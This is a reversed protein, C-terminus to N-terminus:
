GAGPAAREGRRAGPRFAAGRQREVGRMHARQHDARGFDALDHHAGEDQAADPQECSPPAPETSIPRGPVGSSDPQLPKERAVAIGVGHEIGGGVVLAAASTSRNPTCGSRVAASPRDRVARHQLPRGVGLGCRAQADRRLEIGVVDVVDGHDAGPRGPKGGRDIGRRLAQRHDHEVLAREASLRAGRRPDLIIEAKGVPM